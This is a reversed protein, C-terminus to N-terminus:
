EAAEAQPEDDTAFIDDDEDEGGSAAAAAKAKAQLVKEAAKEFEDRRKDILKQVVDNYEVDAKKLGKSKLREDVKARALALVEKELPTLSQRGGGGGGSRVGPTYTSAYADVVQQAEEATALRPEAGESAIFKEIKTRLNNSFNEALTQNLMQAEGETVVHGAVYPQPVQVSIGAITRATRKVDAALQM